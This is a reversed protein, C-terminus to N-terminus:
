VDRNDICQLFIQGNALHPWVLFMLHFIAAVCQLNTGKWPLRKILADNIIASNWKVETKSVMSKM